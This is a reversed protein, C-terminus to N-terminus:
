LHRVAFDAHWAWARSAARHEYDLPCAVAFHRDADDGSRGGEDVGRRRHTRRWGWWWYRGDVDLHWLRLFLQRPELFLPGWEQDFVLRDDFARPAVLPRPNAIVIEVDLQVALSTIACELHSHPLVALDREAALVTQFRHEDACM